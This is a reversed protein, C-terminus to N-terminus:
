TAGFMRLLFPVMVFLVLAFVLLTLPRSMRESALNAETRARTLEGHRLTRAAALLTQYVAAGDAATAAIDALNRLEPVALDEGLRRLATWPKEGALEARRIVRRMAVFAPTGSVTAAEELAQEVSGRSRREGAVLTLFFELNSRFAARAKGALERAEASPTLWGVAAVAVGVAVPLAAVGPLGAVALLVGIVSPALFGAAAFALKRAILQDRTWGLVALDEDSCGAPWGPRAAILALWGSPVWWGSRAGNLGDRSGTKPTGTLQALAEGLAPAPAKVARWALTLGLGILLGAAILIQAGTV